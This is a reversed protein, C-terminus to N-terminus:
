AGGFVTQRYRSISSEMQKWQDSQLQLEANGWFFMDQEPIETALCYEESQSHCDCEVQLFGSGCFYALANKILENDITLVSTYLKLFSEPLSDKNIALLLCVEFAIQNPDEFGFDNISELEFMLFNYYDKEDKNM